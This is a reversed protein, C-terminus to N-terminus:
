QPQGPLLDPERRHRMGGALWRATACRYLVRSCADKLVYTVHPELSSNVAQQFSTSDARSGGVTLATGKPGLQALQRRHLSGGSPKEFVSSLRSGRAGM